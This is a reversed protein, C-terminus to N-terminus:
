SIENLHPTYELWCATMAMTDTTHAAPTLGITMVRADNPVDASSITATVEAYSTTQNTGSSDAVSTDGENFFTAITFGVADTTGGSAIRFHLKLDKSTDIDPPLPVSTVVQDNNSAAWLLRQCGDTAGNIADLVPTTDSALVGGNAAIAGVDFATAERFTNLPIGVYRPRTLLQQLAQQASRGIDVGNLLNVTM